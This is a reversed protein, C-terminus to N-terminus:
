NTKSSKSLENFSFIFLLIPCHLNLKNIILDHIVTYMGYYLEFSTTVIRQRCQSVALISVNYLTDYSIILQVERESLMQSLANPSISVNYSCLLQNTECPWELTVRVSDSELSESMVRIAVQPDSYIM